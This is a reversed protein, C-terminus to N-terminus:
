MSSEAENSLEMSCSLCPPTCLVASTASLFMFSTRPSDLELFVVALVNSPAIEFSVRKLKGGCHQGTKEQVGKGWIRRRDESEQHM